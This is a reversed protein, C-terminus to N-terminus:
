NKKSAAVEADTYYGMERARTKAIFEGVPFNDFETVIMFHFECDQGAISEATAQFKEVTSEFQMMGLAKGDKLCSVFWKNKIGDGDCGQAKHYWDPELPPHTDKTPMINLLQVALHGSNELWDIFDGGIVHEFFHEGSLVTHGELIMNRFFRKRPGEHVWRSLMQFPEPEWELEGSALLPLMRLMDIGYPTPIGDDVIFDCYQLTEDFQLPQGNIIYEIMVKGTM